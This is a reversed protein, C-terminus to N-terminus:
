INKLRFKLDSIINMYVLYQEYGNLGYYLNSNDFKELNMYKFHCLETLLRWDNILKTDNSKKISEELNFIENLSHLQLNNNIFNFNYNTKNRLNTDINKKINEKIIEVNEFNINEKLESNLIFKSNYNNLLNNIFNEFFNFINNSNSENKIQFSEYNYFLSVLEDIKSIKKEDNEIENNHNKVCNNIWNCYKNETLPYHEWNLNHFNKNLDDSLNSNKVNFLLGTDNHSYIFESSRINFFSGKEDIIVGEFGLKSIINLFKSNLQFNINKFFKPTIDFTKKILNLHLKVQEEFEIESFESSLSHYYTGGLFDVCGTEVLEKFSELLEPSFIKMEELILGSLFFNVKFKGNNQKILKLLLKNLPIYYKKSFNKLKLNMEYNNLYDCNKGIDFIRLKNLILSEHLEFNLNINVM